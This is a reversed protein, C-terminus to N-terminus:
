SLDFTFQLIGDKYYAIVVLTISVLSKGLVAGAAWPSPIGLILRTVM